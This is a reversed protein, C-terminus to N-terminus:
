DMMCCGKTRGAYRHHASGDQRTGAKNSAPLRTYMEGQREHSVLGSQPAIQLKPKEIRQGVVM